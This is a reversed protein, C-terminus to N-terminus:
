TPLGSRHDILHREVEVAMDDIGRQIDLTLVNEEDSPAELTDFQSRLMDAKMYHGRRAVMRQYIFEYDGRLFLFFVDPSAPPFIEQDTESPSTLAKSGHLLIRRYQHKLASCVLLADSGSSRERQIVEHLKLLWPLRDQDTLAEGRSMKEINERPHFDDGEYLPWGLKESLFIGFTSKGCGSVGMIIYIM